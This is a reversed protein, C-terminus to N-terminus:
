ELREAIRKELYYGDHTCGSQGRLIEAVPRSEATKQQKIRRNDATARSGRGAPYLYGAHDHQQFDAPLFDFTGQM